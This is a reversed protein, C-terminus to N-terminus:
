RVGAAVRAIFATSEEASLTLSRIAEFNAVYQGVAGVRSDLLNEVLGDLYVMRPDAPDPFTYVTFSVHSTIGLTYPQIQVTVNPLAAAAVFRDLQQRAVTGGFAAIRHLVSEDLVFFVRPPVPRTLISQRIMRMEIQREVVREPIDLRNAAVAYAFERTQLLGPVLYEDYNWIESASDEFGLSQGQVEGLVDSYSQWWGKERSERVLDLLEARDTDGVEFLDLMNRVDPIRALLRGNEIRSVKAASCELYAAVDALSKGAAERLQRLRTGVQRRRLIPSPESAM